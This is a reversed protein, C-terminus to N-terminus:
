DFWGHLHLVANTIERRLVEQVKDAKLWTIATRGTADELLNDYNLTALVGPLAVVADFIARDRVVLQGITDKLWGRFVGSGRDNLRQSIDEAASILFNTKGSKIQRTLLEVDDHDALGKDRCHQVGHQLLGTWTAVKCGEVEQNGCAAVSVGTGTITVVRGGALDNKLKSILTEQGM